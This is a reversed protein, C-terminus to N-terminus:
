PAFTPDWCTRLGEDLNDLANMDEPSIEFDFVDANEVIRENHVSKPIVVNGKQLSWRIMLQATSKNYKRAISIAIEDNLKEGRSLPSYAVLQVQKGTCFDLLERQYLFPHFEVQNVVPTIGTNKMLEELHRITFNSVGISRCLGEKKMHEFVKWSQNREPVPFHMLYLDVYKLKLRSLSSRLAAEPDNHEGNWLKTVVFIDDRGVNCKKIASGVSEENGYISATDVHRYGAKIASLVAREAEEGNRAQWTGLGLVPIRNGDNLRIKSNIDM